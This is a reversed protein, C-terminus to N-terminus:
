WSSLWTQSHPHSFFLILKQRFEYGVHDCLLVSARTEKLAHLPASSFTLAIKTITLVTERGRCNLVTKIEDLYTIGPTPNSGVLGQPGCIKLRSRLGNRWGPLIKEILRRHSKCGRIPTKCVGANAVEGRRRM